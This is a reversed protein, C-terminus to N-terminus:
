KAKSAQQAETEQHRLDVVCVGEQCEISQLHNVLTDIDYNYEAAIGDKVTWLETIIEDMMIRM